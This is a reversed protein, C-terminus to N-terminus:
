LQRTKKDPTSVTGVGRPLALYVSTGVRAVAKYKLPCNEFADEWKSPHVLGNIDTALLAKFSSIFYVRYIQADWDQIDLGNDEMSTKGFM